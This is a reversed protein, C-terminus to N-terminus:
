YLRRHEPLVCGVTSCIRAFRDRPLVGYHHFWMARAVIVKRGHFWTWPGNRPHIPGLWVLCGEVKMCEHMLRWIPPFDENRPAVVMPPPERTMM